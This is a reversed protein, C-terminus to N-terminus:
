KASEPLLRRLVEAQDETMLIYCVQHPESAVGSDELAVIADYASTWPGALNGPHDWWTVPELDDEFYFRYM